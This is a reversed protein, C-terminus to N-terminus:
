ALTGLVRALDMVTHPKPLFTQVHDWAPLTNLEDVDKGSMLVRLGAPHRERAHSLVTLGDYPAERFEYDTIVAIRRGEPVADLARCAGHVSTATAVNLLSPSAHLERALARMCSVVHPEDDAIVLWAAEGDKM